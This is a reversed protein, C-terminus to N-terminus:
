PNQLGLRGRAEAALELKSRLTKLTKPIGPTPEAADVSIQLRGVGAGILEDLRHPTLLFGNTTLGATMGHARIRSALRVVDPHLLPEGGILHLYVCGLEAGHDIRLALEEFPVHGRHNDYQSCYACNLNCQWTINLQGWLPLADWLRPLGRAIARPSFPDNRRGM